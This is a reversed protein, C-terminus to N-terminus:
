TSFTIISLLLQPDYRSAVKSSEPNNYKGNPAAVRDTIAAGSDQVRGTSLGIVGTIMDTIMIQLTSLETSDQPLYNRNSSGDAIHISTFRAYNTFRRQLIALKPMAPSAVKPSM